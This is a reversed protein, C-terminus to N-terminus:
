ASSSMMMRFVSHAADLDDARRAETCNRVPEEPAAATHRDPLDSPQVDAVAAVVVACCDLLIAPQRNVGHKGFCVKRRDMLDVRGIGNEGVM